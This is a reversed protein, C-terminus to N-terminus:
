CTITTAVKSQNALRDIGLSRLCLHISVRPKRRYFQWKKVRLYACWQSARMSIKGVGSLKNIHGLKRGGFKLIFV